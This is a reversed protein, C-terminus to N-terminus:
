AFASEGCIIGFALIVGIKSSHTEALSETNTLPTKNSIISGIGFMCAFDGSIPLTPNAVCVLYPSIIPIPPTPNEEERFIALNKRKIKELFLRYYM